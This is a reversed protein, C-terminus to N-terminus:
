GGRNTPLLRPGSRGPSPMLGDHQEDDGAREKGSARRPQEGCSAERTGDWKVHRLTKGGMFIFHTHGCDTSVLSM